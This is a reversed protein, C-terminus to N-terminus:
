HQCAACYVTGRGVVRVRTLAAGCSVCPQGGRDYVRPVYRGIQGEADVYNDSMTGGGATAEGLVQRIARHLRGIEAESLSGAPRLPQVGARFLSEDAYINGVGAVVAQDLLAAKIATKPRRVLGASLQSPLWAEELPEPGMGILAPHAALEQATVLRMEGWTWM